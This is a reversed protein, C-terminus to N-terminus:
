IMKECFYNLATPDTMCVQPHERLRSALWSTACKPAGVGIIDIKFSTEDPL